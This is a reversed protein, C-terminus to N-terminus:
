IHIYTHMSTQLCVDTDTQIHVNTMYSKGPIDTCLKHTYIWMDM